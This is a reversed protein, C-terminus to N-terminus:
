LVLKRESPELADYNHLAKGCEFKNFDPPIGLDYIDFKRTIFEHDEDTMEAPVCDVGLSAIKGGVYIIGDYM